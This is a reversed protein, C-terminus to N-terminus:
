FTACLACLRSPLFTLKRRSYGVPQSVASDLPHYAPLPTSSGSSLPTAKGCLTRVIPQLGESVRSLCLSQTSYEQFSYKFVLMMTMSQLAPVRPSLFCPDLAWFFAQPLYRSWPHIHSPFTNIEGVKCM